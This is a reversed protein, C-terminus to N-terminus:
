TVASRRARADPLEAAEREMNEVQLLADTAAEITVHPKLEHIRKAREARDSDPLERSVWLATALRELAGVGLGGLRRAVFDLEPRFRSRALSCTALIRIM